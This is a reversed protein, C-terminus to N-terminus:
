LIVARSQLPCAAGPVGSPGVCLGPAPLSSWVRSLWGCPEVCVSWGGAGAELRWGGAGALLAACGVSSTAGDWSECLACGM